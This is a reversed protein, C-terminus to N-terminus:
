VAWSLTPRLQIRAWQLRTPRFSSGFSYVSAAQWVLIIAGHHSNNQELFAVTVSLKGKNSVIAFIMFFHLFGKWRRTRVSVLPWDTTQSTLDWRQSQWRDSVWEQEVEDHTLNRRITNAGSSIVVFESVSTPNSALKAWRSWIPRTLTESSTCYNANRRSERQARVSCCVGVSALKELHYWVQWRDDPKRGRWILYGKALCM